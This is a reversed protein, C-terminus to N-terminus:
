ASMLRDSELLCVGHGAPHGGLNRDHIVDGHCAAADLVDQLPALLQLAAVQQGAGGGSTPGEVQACVSASGQSDARSPHLASRPLACSKNRCPQFCSINCSSASLDVPSLAPQMPRCPCCCHDSAHRGSDAPADSAAAIAQVTPAAAQIVASNNRTNPMAAQWARAPMCNLCSESSYERALVSHAHRTCSCTIEQAVLRRKPSNFFSDALIQGQTLTGTLDHCCMLFSM